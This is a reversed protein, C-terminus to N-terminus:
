FKKGAEQGRRYFRARQLKFTGCGDPPARPVMGRAGGAGPERGKEREDTLAMEIVDLIEAPDEPRDDGPRSQDERELRWCVM